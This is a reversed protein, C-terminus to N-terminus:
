VCITETALIRSSGQFDTRGKLPINQWSMESNSDERGLWVTPDRYSRSSAARRWLLRAGEYRCPFQTFLELREPLKYAAVSDGLFASNTRPDRLGAPHRGSRKPRM